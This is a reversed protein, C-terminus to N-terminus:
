GRGGVHTLVEMTVDESLDRASNPNNEDEGDLINGGEKAASKGMVKGAKKINKANKIGKFAIGAGPMVVNVGVEIALGEVSAKALRAIVSSKQQPKNEKPSKNAQENEKKKNKNRTKEKTNTM